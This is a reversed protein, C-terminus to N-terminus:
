YFDKKFIYIFLICFLLYFRHGFTRLWVATVETERSKWLDRRSPHCGLDRGEWPGFVRERRECGSFAKRDGLFAGNLKLNRDGKLTWSFLRVDRFSWRKLFFESLGAVGETKMRASHRGELLPRCLEEWCQLWSILLSFLSSFLTFWAM